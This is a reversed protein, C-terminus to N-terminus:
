SHWLSSLATFDSLLFRVETQVEFLVGDTVTGSSGTVTALVATQASREMQQKGAREATRGKM